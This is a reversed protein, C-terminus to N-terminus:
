INKTPPAPQLLSLAAKEIILFKLEFFVWPLLDREEAHLFFIALFPWSPTIKQTPHIALFLSTSSKM